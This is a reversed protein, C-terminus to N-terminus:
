KSISGKMPYYARGAYAAGVLLLAGVAAKSIKPHASVVSASFTIGRSAASSIAGAVSSIGKMASSFCTTVASGLSSAAYSIASITTSVVPLKAISDLSEMVSM